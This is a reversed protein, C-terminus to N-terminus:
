KLRHYYVHQRSLKEMFGRVKNQARTEFSALIQVQTAQNIKKILPVTTPRDRDSIGSSGRTYWRRARSARGGRCGPTGRLCHLLNTVGEGGGARGKGKM